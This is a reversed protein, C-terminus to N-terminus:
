FTNYRYIVQISCIDEVNNEYPDVIKDPDRRVVIVISLSGFEAVCDNCSRPNERDNSSLIECIGSKLDETIKIKPVLKSIKNSKSLDEQHYLDFLFLIHLLHVYVIKHLM